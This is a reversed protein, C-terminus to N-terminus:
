SRATHSITSRALVSIAGHVKTSAFSLRYARMLISLVSQWCISVAMSFKSRSEHCLAGRFNVLNFQAYARQGFQEVRHIGRREMVTIEVSICLLIQLTPGHSIWWFAMEPHKHMNGLHRAFIWLRCYTLGNVVVKIEFGDHVSAVQTQQQQFTSGAQQDSYAKEGYAEDARVQQCGETGSSEGTDEPFTQHNATPDRHPARHLDKKIFPPRENATPMNISVKAKGLDM